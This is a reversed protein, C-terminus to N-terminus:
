LIPTTPPTFSGCPRKPYSQPFDAKPFMPKGVKPLVSTQIRAKKLPLTASHSHIGGAWLTHRAHSQASILNEKLWISTKPKPIYIFRKIGNGCCADMPSGEGKKGLMNAIQKRAANRYKAGNEWSCIQNWWLQSVLAMWYLMLQVFTVLKLVTSRSPCVGCTVSQPCIFLPM